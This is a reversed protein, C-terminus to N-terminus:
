SCCFELIFEPFLASFTVKQTIISNQFRCMCSLNSSLVRLIAISCDLFYLTDYQAVTYIM